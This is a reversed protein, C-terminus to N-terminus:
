KKLKSKLIKGNTFAIHDIWYYISNKQEFLLIDIETIKNYTEFKTM